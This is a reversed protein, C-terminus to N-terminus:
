RGMHLVKMEHCKDCPCDPFFHSLSTKPTRFYTRSLHHTPFTNVTKQFLKTKHIINWITFSVPNIRIQRASNSMVTTHLRNSLQTQPPFLHKPYSLHCKTYLPSSYVSTSQAHPGRRYYSRFWTSIYIYFVDLVATFWYCALATRGRGESWISTYGDDDFNDGDERGGLKCCFAWGEGRVHDDNKPANATNRFAVILKTKDTRRDSRGDAWMSCSQEWQVSKWPVQYTLIKRFDTSFIWTDNFDSLFLPYKVHLGIYIKIMGWENINPILLTESLLHLSYWFVYKANLLKKRERFDHRKHSLKPFYHLASCEVSSLITCDCQM